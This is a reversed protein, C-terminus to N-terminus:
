NFYITHKYQTNHQKTHTRTHVLGTAYCSVGNYHFLKCDNNEMVMICEDFRSENGSCDVNHILLEGSGNGFGRLASVVASLFWSTIYYKQM